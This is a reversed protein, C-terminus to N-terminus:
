LFSDRPIRLIKKDAISKLTIPINERKAASYTKEEWSFKIRASNPKRISNHRLNLPYERSLWLFDYRKSLPAIAPVDDTRKKLAMIPFTAKAVAVV